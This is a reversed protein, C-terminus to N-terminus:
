FFDLEQNDIDSKSKIVIDRCERDLCGTMTEGITYGFRRM